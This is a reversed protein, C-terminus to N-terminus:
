HRAVQKQRLKGGSGKQRDSGNQQNTRHGL